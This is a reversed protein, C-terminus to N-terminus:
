TLFGGHLLTRGLPESAESRLNVLSGIASSCPLLLAGEGAFAAKDELPRPNVLGASALKALVEQKEELSMTRPANPRILLGAAALM